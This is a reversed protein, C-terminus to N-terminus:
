LERLSVCDAWVYSAQSLPRAHSTAQSFAGEWCPLCANVEFSIYFAPRVALLALHGPEPLSLGHNRSYVDLEITYMYM